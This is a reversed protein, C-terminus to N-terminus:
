IGGAERVKVTIDNLPTDPNESCHRAIADRAAGEWRNPMGHNRQQDVVYRAQTNLDADNWDGCSSSASLNGDSGCAAILLVPVVIRLINKCVM